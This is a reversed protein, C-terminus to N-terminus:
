SVEIKTESCFTIGVTTLKREECYYGILGAGHVKNRMGEARVELIREGIM